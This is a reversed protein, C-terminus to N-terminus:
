RRTKREMFPLPAPLGDAQALLATLAAELRDADRGALLTRRDAQIRAAVKGDRVVYMAPVNEGGTERAFARMTVHRRPLGGLREARLFSGILASDRGSTLAMVSVRGAHARRVHRIDKAATACAVVDGSRFAWVVTLESRTAGAQSWAAPAPDGAQLPDAAGGWPSGCAACAVSMWVVVRKM